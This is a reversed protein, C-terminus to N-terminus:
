SGENIIRWAQGNKMENLTFQCYSLHKAFAVVEDKSPINLNEVKSLSTDCLVQAANPGLAIAPKGYLIAETAAISNYTILCYINNDLDSQITNTTSRESRSPKLRIRIKRDTYKKLEEIVQQTWTEPDPQGFLNMVKVSPPCILIDRGSTPRCYKWNMQKLRNDPREIIPNLNQLNNKTIRHWTKIKGNGLYGTDISYFTRNTEWCHRYAKQSAGGVGRIILPTKLNKQTDWSSIIGNSGIAFSELIPDYLLGKKEIDIESTNIAAVKSM